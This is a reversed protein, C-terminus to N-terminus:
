RKSELTLTREQEVTTDAVNDHLVIQLRYTGAPDSSQLMAPVPEESFMQVGAPQPAKTWIKRARDDVVQKGSPDFLRYDATVNCNGNAGPKCGAVAVMVLFPVDALKAPVVTAEGFTAAGRQWAQFKGRDFFIYLAGQFGATTGQAM